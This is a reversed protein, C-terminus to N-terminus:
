ARQQPSPETIESCVIRTTQVRNVERVEVYATRGKITAKVIDSVTIRDIRVAADAPIARPWM